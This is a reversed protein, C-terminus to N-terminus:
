IEAGPRGPSVAKAEERVELEADTLIAALRKREEDSLEDGAGAAASGAGRISRRALLVALGLILVPSLWLLMTHWGLRPRLLVFEGYRAVVYDLVEANTAGKALRERVLLRLDRALPADSDDISQNQCVLCRLEASLSRARAELAPDKLVEDPQYAGAPSLAVYCGM